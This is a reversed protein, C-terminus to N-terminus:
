GSCRMDRSSQFTRPAAVDFHGCSKASKSGRKKANRKRQMTRRPVLSLTESRRMANIAEELDVIRPQRLARERLRSNVNGLLDGLKLRELVRSFFGLAIATALLTCIAGM